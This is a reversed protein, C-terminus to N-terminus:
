HLKLKYINLFLFFSCKTDDTSKKCCDAIFLHEQTKAKITENESFHLLLFSEHKSGKM